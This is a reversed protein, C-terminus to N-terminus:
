ENLLEKRMKRLQEKINVTLPLTIKRGEYWATIEGGDTNVGVASHCDCNMIKLFERETLYSEYASTNNVEQLYKQAKGSCACELAIIGTCAAPVFERVSFTKVYFKSLDVGLRNLGAKALLIADYEGSLLKNLRTDVNGRLSKVVCDPYIEKIQYERRLSGTGVTFNGNLAENNLAILVDRPDERELVAGVTVGQPFEAPLDKASHVAIDIEGSLIRDHFEDVFVGKGGLQIVSKDLSLDGKTQLYVIECKLSPFHKKIENVALETQRLALKSKRTGIILTDNM